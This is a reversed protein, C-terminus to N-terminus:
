LPFGQLTAHLMAIHRDLNAIIVPYDATGAYLDILSHCAAKLDETGFSKLLNLFEMESDFYNKLDNKENRIRLAEHFGELTADVCFDEAWATDGVGDLKDLRMKLSLNLLFFFLALVPNLGEKEHFVMYPEYQRATTLRLDIGDDEANAIFDGAAHHWPFIQSFDNVDYYLTLIKSAQRYIEFSQESSLDKYGKGYEWLKICQKGSETLSLHFEHYGEFWDELLFSMSGHDDFTYVGPLYSLSFKANIRRIVEFEKKLWDRGTKSVAVNLGFKINSGNRILEVSAPHYLAGHKETRVIIKILDAFFIEEGCKKAAAKLISGFEDQKLFNDISQFYTKYPTKSPDCELPLHLRSRDVPVDGHPSSVLFEIL